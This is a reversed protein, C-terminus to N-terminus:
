SMIAKTLLSSCRPMTPKPSQLSVPAGQGFGGVVWSRHLEIWPYVLIKLGELEVPPQGLKMILDDRTTVGVSIFELAEPPLRQGALVPAPRDAPLPFVVCGSVCLAMIVSMLSCRRTVARGSQCTVTRQSTFVEQLFGASM